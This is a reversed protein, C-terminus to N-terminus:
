LHVHVHLRVQVRALVEAVAVYTGRNNEGIHILWDAVDHFDVPAQPLGFLMLRLLFDLDIELKLHAELSSHNLGLIVSPSPGEVLQHREM